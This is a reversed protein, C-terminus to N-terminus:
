SLSNGQDQFSLPMPGDPFKGLQGRIDSEGIDAVIGDGDRAPQARIWEDNDLTPWGIATSCGRCSCATLRLFDTVQIEDDAKFVAFLEIKQLAM